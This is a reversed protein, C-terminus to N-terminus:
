THTRARTHARTRTCCSKTHAVICIVIFSFYYLCVCDSHLYTHAHTCTLSCSRMQIIEYSLSLAHTHARSCIHSHIRARALSYIRAHSCAHLHTFARTLSHAHTDTFLSHMRAYACTLTHPHVHTGLWYVFFLCYKSHKLISM